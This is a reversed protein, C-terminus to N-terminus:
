VEPPPNHVELYQISNSERFWLSSSVVQVCLSSSFEAAFLRFEKESESEEKDSSEKEGAEEAGTDVIMTNVEESLIFDCYLEGSVIAV